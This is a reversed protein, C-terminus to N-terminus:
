TSYLKGALGSEVSITVLDRQSGGDKNRDAGVSAGAATSCDDSTQRMGIAMEIATQSCRLFPSTVIAFHHQRKQAHSAGMSRPSFDHLNDQQQPHSPYQPQTAQFQTLNPSEPPTMRQLTWKQPQQQQQSGDNGKNKALAIPVSTSKSGTLVSEAGVEAGVATATARTRSRSTFGTSSSGSHRSSSIEHAFDRIIRGTQRAQLKGQATLPPDQPCPSTAAWASDVQDIRQGHRVFYLSISPM